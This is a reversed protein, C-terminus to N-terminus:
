MVLEVFSRWFETKPLFFFMLVGTGYIGLAISAPKVTYGKRWHYVMLVALLLPNFIFIFNAAIIEPPWGFADLSHFLVRDVTPGLLTLIAAFMYTAHFLMKKRYVVALLYFIMLWILYVIGIAIYDAARASLESASLATGNSLSENRFREIQLYYVHRITLYATIFVIPMIVYSIKGILKHIKTKRLHILLPQTIAMGVWLLM